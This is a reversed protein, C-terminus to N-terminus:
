PGEEPAWSRPRPDDITHPDDDIFENWPVPHLWGLARFAALIDTVQLKRFAVSLAHRESTDSWGAASAAEKRSSRLARHYLADYEHRTLPPYVEGRLRKM